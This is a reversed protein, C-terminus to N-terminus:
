TTRDEIVRLLHSAFQLVEITEQPSTVPVHRHSAPNKFRGIAGAFLASLAEAEAAPENSDALPGGTPSFAKRMLDVGYLKPDLEPAATRVAVEIEKFAKLIATEYDGLLFLPYTTQELLPHISGKPFLLAHRFSNYDATSRLECGRRTVFYIRERSPHPAILSERELVTWAEMLAHHCLEAKERWVDAFRTDHFLETHSLMRAQGLSNLHVLLPGALQEPALALLDDPNPIVTALHMPLSMQQQFM